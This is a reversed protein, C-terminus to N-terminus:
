WCMGTRRRGSAKSSCTCARPQCANVKRTTTCGSPFDEVTDLALLVRLPADPLEVEGRFEKVAAGKVKRVWTSVEGPKRAKEVREWKKEANALLPFVLLLSCIAILIRKM